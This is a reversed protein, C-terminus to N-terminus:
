GPDARARRDRLRPAAVCGPRSGVPAAHWTSASALRLGGAADVPSFALGYVDRRHGTFPQGIPQATAVDWLLVEGDFSRGGTALLLSGDALVPSFALSQVGSPHGQLPDGYPTLDAARWLRLNVSSGRGGSAIFRGNPSFAVAEVEAAHAEQAALVTQVTVEWMVVRGDYGGSVLRAGDPSFAIAAVVGTHGAQSGDAANLVALTEGTAADHFVIRGDDGASVLVPPADASGTGPQFALTRVPAATQLDLVQVTNAVDWVRIRGDVAGYALWRGEESLALASVWEDYVLPEGIVAGDAVAVQMVTGDRDALWLSAGDPAFRVADVWNPRQVLAESLASERGAAWVILGGSEDGSVIRPGDAAVVPLAALTRVEDNHGNLVPLRLLPAGTRPDRLIVSGSGDGTVLTEAGAPGTFALTWLWGTSATEGLLDGSAADWVRVFEDAGGSALRTGAADFALALVWNGHAPLLAGDRDRTLRQRVQPADATAALSWLLIVGDEAGSALTAGDPSFALSWLAAGEASHTLTVAEGAAIDWLRITGDVHGSALRAGDPAFTLARAIPGAGAEATLDPLPAALPDAAGLDFLLVRGEDSTAALLPGAAGLTEPPADTIALAWWGNASDLTHLPTFAAGDEAVSWVVLRGASDATALHTGAPNIALSRVWDAHLPPLYRLLRPNAQLATLLGSRAAVTDEISLAELGLLLATDRQGEDLALLGALAVRGSESVRAQADARDREAIATAENDRALDLNAESQGWFFMALLAFVSVAVLSVLAATLLQRQRKRQHDRSARIYATQLPTAEPTKAATAAEALWNEAETIESGDLLYSTDRRNADWEKARGILRTHMRTHAIDTDIAKVLTAFSADFRDPDTFDLWQHRALALWNAHVIDTLRRDGILTANVPSPTAQAHIALAAAEDPVPGILIPVVHKNYERAHAVELMCVESELSAQTMVFCFTDSEEIGTTIERWWDVTAPIDEFDVWVDRGQGTFATHLRRTFDADVRTYSLFIDPM